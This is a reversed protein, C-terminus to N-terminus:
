ATRRLIRQKTKKLALPAMVREGRKWSGTYIDQFIGLTDNWATAMLPLLALVLLSLAIKPPLGEVFVHVQPVTKAVLGLALDMILLVVIVPAAM